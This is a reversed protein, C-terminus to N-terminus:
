GVVRIDYLDTFLIKEEDLRLVFGEIQEFTETKYHKM